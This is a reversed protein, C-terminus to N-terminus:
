IVPPSFSMRRSRSWNKPTAATFIPMPEPSAFTPKSIPARLGLFKQLAQAFGALRKQGEPDDSRLNMLVGIRRTKDARAVFPQVLPSAVVGGLLTIFRRRTM